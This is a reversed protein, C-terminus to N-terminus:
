QFYIIKGVSNFNRTQAKYFYIGAPVSAGESNTGPWNLINSNNFDNHIFERILHGRIDYISLREIKDHCMTFDFCITNHFPNPYATLLLPNFDHSDVGTPIATLDFPSFPDGITTNDEFIIAEVCNYISDSSENYIKFSISEGNDNGVITFYWYGDWYPPNAPQWSAISRCDSEGGPGFAAAANLNVGGEFPSGNYTIRSMLIMSYQTGSIIQWEPPITRINLGEQSIHESGSPYVLEDSANMKIKYGINPEM